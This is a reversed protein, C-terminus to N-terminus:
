ARTGKETPLDPLATSADSIGVKLSRKSVLLPVDVHSTTSSTVTTSIDKQSWTGVKQKLLDARDVGALGLRM